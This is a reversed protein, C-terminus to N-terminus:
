INFERRARIMNPAVRMPMPSHNLWSHWLKLVWMTGWDFSISQIELLKSLCVKADIKSSLQQLIVIICKTARRVHNKSDAKASPIIEETPIGDLCGFCALIYMSALMFIIPRRAYTNKEHVGVCQQPPQFQQKCYCKTTDQTSAGFNLFYFAHERIKEQPNPPGGGLLSCHAAWYTLRQTSRPSKEGSFISTGSHPWAVDREIHGIISLFCKPINARMCDM